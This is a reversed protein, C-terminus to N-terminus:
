DANGPDAAHTKMESKEEKFAEEKESASVKMQQVNWRDLNSKVQGRLWVAMFCVSLCASAVLAAQRFLKPFSGTKKKETGEKLNRVDDM